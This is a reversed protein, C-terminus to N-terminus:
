FPSSLILVPVFCRVGDFPLKSSLMSDTKISMTWCSGEKALSRRQRNSSRLMVTAPRLQFSPETGLTGVICQFLFELLCQEGGQFLCPALSGLRAGM